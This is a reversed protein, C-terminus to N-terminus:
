YIVNNIQISEEIYNKNGGDIEKELTFFDTDLNEDFNDPVLVILNHRERTYFIVNVTKM